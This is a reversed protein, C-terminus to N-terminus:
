HREFALLRKNKELADYEKLIQDRSAKIMLEHQDISSKRELQEIASPVPFGKPDSTNLM